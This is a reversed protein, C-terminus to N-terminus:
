RISRVNTWYKVHELDRKSSSNKVRHIVYWPLTQGISLSTERDESNSRMHRMADTGIPVVRTATQDMNRVSFIELQTCCQWRNWLTTTPTLSASGVNSIWGLIRIGTSVRNADAARLWSSRLALHGVCNEYKLFTACTNRTWIKTQFKVGIYFSSHEKMFFINWSQIALQFKNLTM